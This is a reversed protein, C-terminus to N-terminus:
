HSQTVERAGKGEVEVHREALNNFVCLTLTGALARSSDQAIGSVTAQSMDQM